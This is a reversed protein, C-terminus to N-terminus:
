VQKFTLKWPGKNLVSGQGRRGVQKSSTLGGLQSCYPVVLVPPKIGLALVSWMQRSAHEIMWTLLDWFISETGRSNETHSLKDRMLSVEETEASQLKGWGETCKCLSWFCCWHSVLSNLKMMRMICVAMVISWHGHTGNVFLQPIAAIVASYSPSLHVRLGGGWAWLHDNGKWIFPRRSERNFGANRGTQSTCRRMLWCASMILDSKQSQALHNASRYTNNM